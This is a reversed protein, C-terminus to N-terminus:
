MDLSIQRDWYRWYNGSCEFTNPYHHMQHIGTPISECDSFNEVAFLLAISEDPQNSIRTAWYIDEQKRIDEPGPNNDVGAELLYGIEDEGRVGLTQTIANVGRLSYGGNGVMGKIHSWPAGILDYHLMSLEVPRLIFTDIHSILIRRSLFYEIFWKSTLMRSYEKVDFRGGLHIVRINKWGANEKLQKIIRSSDISGIFTLAAGTGGYVTAINNLTPLLNSIEGRRPEILVVELNTSTTAKGFVRRQPTPEPILRFKEHWYSDYQEGNWNCYQIPIWFHIFTKASMSVSQHNFSPVDAQRFSETRQSYQEFASLIILSNCSIYFYIFILLFQPQRRWDRGYQYRM